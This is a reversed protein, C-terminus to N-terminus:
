ARDPEIRMVVEDEFMRTRGFAGTVGAHLTEVYVGVYDPPDSLNVKRNAPCWYRDPSAAGCGFNTSSMTLASGVYTNCLGVVSGSRCTSLSGSATTSRPGTGKFVIIKQLTGAHMNAIDNVVQSVTQFDADAANGLTAEFRAADRTANDLTLYTRFALGFELTGFIVLFFIPLILASEVIVSGREGPRRVLRVARRVRLRSPERSVHAGSGFNGM